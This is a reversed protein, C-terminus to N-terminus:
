DEEIWQIKNITKDTYGVMKMFKILEEYMFYADVGNDLSDEIYKKFMREENGDEDVTRIEIEIM